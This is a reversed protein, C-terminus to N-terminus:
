NSYAVYTSPLEMQTAAEEDERWPKLDATEATRRVHERLRKHMYRFERSDTLKQLTEKSLTLTDELGTMVPEAKKVSQITKWENTSMRHTRTNSSGRGIHYSQPHTRMAERMNFWKLHAAGTRITQNLQPERHEERFTREMAHLSPQIQTAKLEEVRQEFYANQANEQVSPRQGKPSYPLEVPCVYSADQLAAVRYRTPEQRRPASSHSPTETSSENILEDIDESTRFGLSQLERTETDYTHYSVPAQFSHPKRHSSM